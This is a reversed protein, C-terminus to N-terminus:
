ASRSGAPRARTTSKPRPREGKRDIDIDKWTRGDNYSVEFTMDVAHVPGYEYSRLDLTIEQCAGREGYGGEVDQASLQVVPLANRPRRHPAHVTTPEADPTEAFAASGGAIVSGARVAAAATAGNLRPQRM